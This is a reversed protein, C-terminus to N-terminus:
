IKGSLNKQGKGKYRRYREDIEGHCKYCVTIGDKLKHEKVIQEVLNWYLYSDKNLNKVNKIGNELLVKKAIKRFSKIHHVQLKKNTDCISCEYKDRELVKKVWCYYLYSRCDCYFGRNGKYLHHEKGHKYKIEGNRIKEKFTVSVKNRTKKDFMPNDIKMRKSSEIWTKKMIEKNKNKCFNCIKDKNKERTNYRKRISEKGIKKGCQRCSIERIILKEKEYYPRDPHSRCNNCTKQNSYVKIFNKHCISCNVKNFKNFCDESCFKRSYRSGIKKHKGCQRCRWLKKGNKGKEM